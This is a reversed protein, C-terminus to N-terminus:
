RASLVTLKRVAEGGPGQLRAFYLGAPVPRGADDRGDWLISASGAARAGDALTRVLAGTVDYLRLSVEGPKPLDYGIAIGAPAVVCPNPSIRHLAFVLPAAADGAEMPAPQNEISVDDVAAEVLSDYGLDSATFRLRVADTRQIIAELDFEMRVWSNNSATTSELPIWSAGGDSSIDVTWTDQAPFQALNNTYWRWYVLKPNKSGRIDIAPSTLTTKGADVDSYNPNQGPVGQGTVFCITGDPSHDDESQAPNGSRWSGVPDVRTWAGQTANDDPAGVTWGSPQELIDEFYSQVRAEFPADFTQGCWTTLHIQFPVFAETPAVAGLRAEFLPALEAAGGAPISPHGADDTLLTLNPDTCSLQAQVERGQDSGTNGIAVRIAFREGPDVKGDADGEAADDISWAALTFIPAHLTVDFAGTWESRGDCAMRVGFPVVDGDAMSDTVRVLIDDENTKNGMGDVVGYSASPDLIEVRPDSTSLLATVNQAAVHGINRLRVVFQLTESRDAMGDADGVSVGDTDDDLITADWELWPQMGPDVAIEGGAPLFGSKVAKVHLPSPDVPAPDLSAFGQADTGASAWADLDDSYISVTAGPVALGNCTVRVTTPGQGMVYGPDHTVVLQGLLTNWQPMAPDGLLSIEYHCWRNWPDMQWINDTKSDVNAWGIAVMSEGYCADVQQRDYHQSPGIDYGPCYWGYRTNGLFASACNDDLVFAESISPTDPNDWNNSYCGQTSIYVYSHEVGDNTFYQVDSNVMKMGYTTNSHGLHHSTPFGSNFMAIAEAAGWSYDPSDYLTQKLYSNPYGSTCYGWDCCYDKVDDMYIGSYTPVDDMREGMFLAKQIESVVPHDTAMENKHLWNNLDTANHATIRGVTIEGALDAEAPEGWVGDHDDDWTGDLAEFYCDGPFSDITGGADCYLNRVPIMDSDGGLMLYQLQWNQYADIVFNRVQEAADVGPYISTIEELLVIKTRLGHGAEFRALAHYDAAMEPTTIIVYPYFDPTLRAGAANAATARDYLALDQPNDVLETIRRDVEETRRLNPLRSPDVGDIPATEVEVTFRESWSLRGSEPRYLVPYLQLFGLRHGWLTEETVMRGRAGPFAADTGYIAPNALTPAIPGNLSMPQPTQAWAVQWSGDVEREPSADVRISVIQEGPPLLVIMRRAPLLPSGPEGLTACGPAEIAVGGAALTRMTPAEFAAELRIRAAEAREEGGAALCCAILAGIGIFKVLGDHRSGNRNSM